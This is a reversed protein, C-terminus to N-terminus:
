FRQHATTIVLYLDHNKCLYPAILDMVVRHTLSHEAKDKCKWTYIQVHLCCGTLAEVLVWFNVGYTKPKKSIYQLFSISVQNWDDAQRYQTLSKSYLLEQFM